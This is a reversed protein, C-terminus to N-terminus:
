EALSEDIHSIIKDVKKAMNKKRFENVDIFKTQIAIDM